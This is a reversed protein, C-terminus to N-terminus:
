LSICSLFLIPLSFGLDCVCMHVCVRIFGYLAVDLWQSYLLDIQASISIDVIYDTMYFSCIM